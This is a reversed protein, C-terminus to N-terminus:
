SVLNPQWGDAVCYDSQALWFGKPSFVGLMVNDLSLIQITHRTWPFIQAEQIAKKLPWTGVRGYLHIKEGGFRPRLTFRRNLLTASLGVKAQQLQYSGSWVQFTQNAQLCLAQEEAEFQEAALYEAKPLRFLQQQYRLYYYDQCHLAAQADAKAQIVERQLRDVMDYSPRYQAQGKMWASLLQRQRAASLQAFVQLDLVGDSGCASLDQALVQQLIDDADQMLYSTRAFAQQMKAYRSQLLPWLERRCWARDYHTDLNSPDEIHEVKLQTAWQCIQERSVDLLPRWISLQGRVDLIKMASLGAVGAGSLLRLILTEAQDQQHHALVLIEHAQRHKLYAQYRAERAQQELNGSQVDVKEIVCDIGRAACQASVFAGWAASSDQLQHDIYIARIKQPYLASLVHLLLMSDMGGSCGILLTSEPPFCQMQKLVRTRFQRQWVENFTPLTSRM